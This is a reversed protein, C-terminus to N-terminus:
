RYARPSCCRPSSTASSRPRAARARRPRRDAGRRRLELVPQPERRRQQGRRQGRQAQRQLVGPRAAHLRRPLHRLQHQAFPRRGDDEYLDASGTIRSAFEALAPEGRWFDRVTDRYKGNWETWQPPFNGVQYGGPGIDWPEAILKVQSVVPDQQVLEFFTSSGTSRTSSAPWRPPWTSASATSTCRPAGLLAALGHDAAALAPASTSRTAPAPTTSTTAGTTKSLRYYGPQRHGQLEADPRPPQGGRHPQLGRRPDGRHRGRAAGQGHRSSRCRSARQGGGDGRLRPRARLLRDHQLGLLQAPGQRAAHQRPRVPAGADARDRHRRAQHPARHDGPPRPRRLHRAAGRPRGPAAPDPGQRAGRLHGVRPLPHAAATTTGTSSRTSSSAKPMHPASDDDNRSDPDDFDYGFLAQDWEIDGDIAKAYPDLLLKNRTAAGAAAPTGRATCATATASGPSSRPLYGHWVYADVEAARGADRQRGARRVPVARGSPSRPSCRSTPAPATSRPGWRTPAAPGSRWRASWASGSWKAGPVRRRPVGRADARLRDPLFGLFALRRQLNRNSTVDGLHGARADPQAALAPRHQERDHEAHAQHRDVRRDEGGRHRRDDAVEAAEGLEGPQERDVQQRLRDRHRDVGLEGVEVPALRHHQTPIPMKTTPESSHPIAHPIVESITNRASCPMPAPATCGIPWVIM